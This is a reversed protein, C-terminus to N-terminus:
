DSIVSYQNSDGRSVCILRLTLLGANYIRVLNSLFLSYLWQLHSSAQFKPYLFYLYQVIWTAFVFASILKATLQDTDKNVCICYRPKRVIRSM